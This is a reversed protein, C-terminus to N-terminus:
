PCDNDAWEMDVICAKARRCWEMDLVIKLLHRKEGLRITVLRAGENVDLIDVKFWEYGADGGWERSQWRRLYVNANVGNGFRILAMSFVEPPHHPDVVDSM